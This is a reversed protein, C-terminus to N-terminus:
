NKKKKEDDEEVVEKVKWKNTSVKMWVSTSDGGGWGWGGLARYCLGYGRVIGISRCHWSEGCVKLSLTINQM